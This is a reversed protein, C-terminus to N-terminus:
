IIQTMFLPVGCLAMSLWCSSWNLSIKQASGFIGSNININICFELMLNLYNMSNLPKKWIEICDIYYILENQLLQKIDNPRYATYQKFFLVPNITRPLKLDLSHNEHKNKFESHFTLIYIRFDWTRNLFNRM